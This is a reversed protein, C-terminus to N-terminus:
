LRDMGKVERPIVDRALLKELSRASIKMERDGRKFQIVGDQVKVSDNGGFGVMNLLSSVGRHDLKLTNKGRQLSLSGNAINVKVRGKGGPM